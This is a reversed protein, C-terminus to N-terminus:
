KKEEAPNQGPNQQGAAEAEAKNVTIYAKVRDALTPFNQIFARAIESKMVDFPPLGVRDKSDKYEHSYKAYAM